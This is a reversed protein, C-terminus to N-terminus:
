RDTSTDGSAVVCYFQKQSYLDENENYHTFCLDYSHEAVNGEKLRWAFGMVPLMCKDCFVMEGKYGVCM